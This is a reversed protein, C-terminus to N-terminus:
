ITCKVGDATHFFFGHPLKAILIYDFHYVEFLYFAGYLSKIIFYESQQPKAYAWWFLLMYVWPGSSRLESM